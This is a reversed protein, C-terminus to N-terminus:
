PTLSSKVVITIVQVPAPNPSSTFTYTGPTTFRRYVESSTALAPINGSAGGPESAEAAAPDSFTIDIPAGSYNEFEVVSGPEIIVSASPYWMGPYLYFDGSTQYTIRYQTSDTLTMGYATTTAYITVLGPSVGTIQGSASNVTALKPNSSVYYVPVNKITDGAATLVVSKLASVSTLGLTASDIPAVVFTAPVAATSTVTVYVTDRRTTGLYQLTAFVRVASITTAKGTITGDSTVQVRTTDESTFLPAPTDPLPQLTGDLPTAVVHQTGGVALAVAHIDTRLAGFLHPDDGHIATASESRCGAAGTLAVLGILVPRVSRQLVSVITATM